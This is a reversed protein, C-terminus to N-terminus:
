PPWRSAAAPQSCTSTTGSNRPAPPWTRLSMGDSSASSSAAWGATWQSSRGAIPSISLTISAIARAESAKTSSYDPRDVSRGPMHVQVLETEDLFGDPLVQIEGFRGLRQESRLGPDGLGDELEFALQADVDESAMALA